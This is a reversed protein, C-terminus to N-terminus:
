LWSCSLCAHFIQTDSEVVAGAGQRFHAFGKASGSHADFTATGEDDVTMADRVEQKGIPGSGPSRQFRSANGDEALALHQDLAQVLTLGPLQALERATHCAGPHVDLHEVAVVSMLQDEDDVVQGSPASHGLLPSASPEAGPL